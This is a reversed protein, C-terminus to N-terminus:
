KLDLTLLDIKKLQEFADDPFVAELQEVNYYRGTWEATGNGLRLTFRDLGNRDPESVRYNELQDNLAKELRATDVIDCENNGSLFLNFVSIEQDPKIKM